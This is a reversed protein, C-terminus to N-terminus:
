ESLNRTSLFRINRQAVHIPTLDKGLQVLLQSLEVLRYGAMQDGASRAAAAVAPQAVLPM